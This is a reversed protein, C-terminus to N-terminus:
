GQWREKIIEVTQGKGTLWMQGDSITLQLEMNRGVLGALTDQAQVALNIVTLNKLRALEAHNRQYWIEAARGGYTVVVVRRAKGSAQRLRKVEPQGLDIWSELEGSLSRQWLGPEEVASLGKTFKLNDDAFMAFALLRIMMRAETESPHQAVTLTHTGYYQRELDSIELAAKFITAKLAM